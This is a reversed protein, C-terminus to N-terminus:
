IEGRVDNFHQSRAEDLSKQSGLFVLLSGGFGFLGGIISALLTSIVTLKVNQIDKLERQTADRKFVM